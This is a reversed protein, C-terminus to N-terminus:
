LREHVLLAAGLRIEARVETERIPHKEKQSLPYASLSLQQDINTPHPNCRASPSM